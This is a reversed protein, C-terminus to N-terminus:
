GSAEPAGIQDAGLDIGRSAHGAAPHISWRSLGIDAASQQGSSILQPTARPKTLQWVRGDKWDSVYLLGDSDRVL